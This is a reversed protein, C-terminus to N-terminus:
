LHVTIKTLLEKAEVSFSWMQKIDDSILWTTWDGWGDGPPALPQSPCSEECVCLTSRNGQRWRCASHNPIASIHSPTPSPVLTTTSSLSSPLSYLSFHPPFPHCALCACASCFMPSVSFPAREMWVRDLGRKVLSGSEEYHVHPMNVDTDYRCNVVTQLHCLM